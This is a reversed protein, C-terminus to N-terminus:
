ACKPRDACFRWLRSGDWRRRWGRGARWGRDAHRFINYTGTLEFDSSDLNFNFNGGSPINLNIVNIEQFFGGAFSYTGPGEYATGDFAIPVAGFAVDPFLMTGQSGPALALRFHFDTWTQGTNNALEYVQDVARNLPFAGSNALLQEQIANYTVLIPDAKASETLAIVCCCAVLSPLFSSKM